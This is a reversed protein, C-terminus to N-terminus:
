WSLAWPHRLSWSMKVRLDDLSKSGVGVQTGLSPEPQVLRIHRQGEIEPLNVM